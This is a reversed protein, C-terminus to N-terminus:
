ILLDSKEREVLEAELKTKELDALRIKEREAIELEKLVREKDADSKSQIERTRIREEREARKELLKEEELLKKEVFSQLEVGSLGCEKGFSIFKDM